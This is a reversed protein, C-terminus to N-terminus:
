FLFVHNIVLKKHDKLGQKLFFMYNIVLKNMNTKLNLQIM